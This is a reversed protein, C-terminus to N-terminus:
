RLEIKAIDVERVFGVIAGRADGELNLLIIKKFGNHSKREALFAGYFKLNAFLFTMIVDSKVSPEEYIKVEGTPNKFVVNLSYTNEKIIQGLEITRGVTAALICHTFDEVDDKESCKINRSKLWEFQSQKIGEKLGKKEFAFSMAFIYLTNM